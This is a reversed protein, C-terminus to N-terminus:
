VVIISGYLRSVSHVIFEVQLLTLGTRSVFRDKEEISPFPHDVHADLWQPGVFQEARGGWLFLAPFHACIM